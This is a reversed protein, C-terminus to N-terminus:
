FSYYLKKYALPLGLDCHFFGKKFILGLCWMLVVVFFAFIFGLMWAAVVLIAPGATVVLRVPEATVALRVPGTFPWSWRRHM